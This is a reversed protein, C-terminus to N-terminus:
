VGPRKPLGLLGGGTDPARKGGIYLLHGRL